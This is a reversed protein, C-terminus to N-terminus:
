GNPRKKLIITKNGKMDGFDISNTNYEVGGYHIRWEGSKAVNDIEVRLVSNENKVNVSAFSIEDPLNPSFTIVKNKITIGFLYRVVVVYLWSASGTYWSWGAKGANKGTYVDASIVYPEAGYKEAEDRTLCKEVPNIMRLYEYAKEKESLKYLAIIFWTAAHTYQGGNERIGVPYDAIYGVNKMNSFPPDLLKITKSTKDVLLEEAYKMASKCREASTIGSIVAYAQTLLDIKCEPSEPSGLVTGDDTIARSFYKGNYQSNAGSKLEALKEYLFKKEGPLTIYRLFKNIVEYLFMTLWVSKGKGDRGVLNMGDNWDGGHMFVLGDDDIEKCVSLVARKCHELLSEKDKLPTMNGCFSENGAPIPVNKLFPIREALIECEGTFSVYEDVVYPLFLRDDMIRTRVGFFPNHWWHMVDGDEFQRAACTLIFERVARRDIYLMTLCDQLQDRFGYGGGVQYYGTRGYFRSCYTQYPLFRVIYDLTSGSYFSFMSLDAYRRKAASIAAKVSLGSLEYGMEVGITLKENPLMESMTSYVPLNMPKKLIKLVNERCCKEMLFNAGEFKLEVKQSNFHNEISFQGDGNTCVDIGCFSNDSFDGLVPNILFNIKIKRNAESTNEIEILYIKSGSPSVSLTVASVFGNFSKRFETYGLGHKCYFDKSSDPSTANWTIGSEEFFLAESRLDLRSENDFATIKNERSNNGFTFGGGNCTILAGGNENAIVNSFPRRPLEKVVFANDGTFYGASTSLVRQPYNLPQSPMLKGRFRFNKVDPANAYYDVSYLGVAKLIKKGESATVIDVKCCDPKHRNIGSATVAAVVRDKLANFYGYEESVSIVVDFEVGFRYLLDYSNLKKNVGCIDSYGTVNIIAVPRRYNYGLKCLEVNCGFAGYIAKKAFSCYEESLRYIASNVNIQTTIVSLYNEDRVTRGKRILESEDFGCLLSFACKRESHPEITVNAKATVYSGDVNFEAAIGTVCLLTLVTTKSNECLLGDQRVNHSIFLKNFEPHSRYDENKSMIFDINVSIEASEKENGRNEITLCRMEAGLGNLVYGECTVFLGNKSGSYVNKDDFFETKDWVVNGANITVNFGEYVTKDKYITYGNWLARGGGNSNATLYYIGDSLFNLEPVTKRIFISRSERGCARPLTESKRLPYKEYEPLFDLRYMASAIHSDGIFGRKIVDTLYNTLALIIMGQHHAMYSKIVGGDYAEYFGFDGYLRKGLMVCMNKLVSKANVTIGMISAYPAIVGGRAQESLAVSEIGFAKYLYNGGADVAAFQSESIGWMGSLLEGSQLKVTSFVSKLAASGKSFNVFLYPMLYEFASGSWSYMCGYTKSFRRGLNELAEGPIKNYGVCYIYTLLAESAVLDYCSLDFRSERSNYGIALLGKKANYLPLFDTNDLLDSIIARCKENAYKNIVCLCVCFNGSDVSSVYEPYLPEGSCTDYWNYLHGNWRKLGDVRQLIGYVYEDFTTRSILTNMYACLVSILSFGINTPSTRKAFVKETRVRCNDAVLFDGKEFQDAFYKWSDKIVTKVYDVGAKKVKKKKDLTTLPMFVIIFHMFALLGFIWLKFYIGAFLFGLSFTLNIGIYKRNGKAHAFTQWQLLNKRKFLRIVSILAAYTDVVARYPLRVFDALTGITVKVCETANTLINSLPLIVPFFLCFCLVSFVLWDGSVAFVIEYILLILPVFADVINLLLHFQQSFNLPNDIKEGNKTKIKRGLYPLMQVDGRLWRLRRAESKEFNEPCQEFVSYSTVIAGSFAGEIFDHSLISNDPFADRVKETFEKIRYIGKGTYNNCLLVDREFDIRSTSYSDIGGNGHFIATYLNQNASSLYHKGILGAVAYDKCLPHKMVACLKEACFIFSDEDLTIVYKYNGELNKVRFFDTKEGLLYANLELLAGRKKEYGCYYGSERNKIRKRIVFAFNDKQARESLFDAIGREEPTFYGDKSPMFDCLMCCNFGPNAYKVTLLREVNKEAENRGGILCCMVILTTKKDADTVIAAPVHMKKAKSSILARLLKLEAMFLPITIPILVSSLAALWVTQTLVLAALVFYYAIRLGRNRNKILVRWFDNGYRATAEAVYAKEGNVGTREAILGLLYMKTASDSVVYSENEIENLLKDTMSLSLIFEDTFIDDIKRLSEFVSTMNTCLDAKKYEFLNVFSEFSKENDSLLTEIQNKTIDDALKIMSGVYESKYIDAISFRKYFADNEAKAVNKEIDIAIETLNICYKLLAYRCASKILCIERIGFPSFKQYGNMASKVIREDLKGRNNEAAFSMLLFICPIGNVSNLAFSPNKDESFYDIATATVSYNELFVREYNETMNKGSNKRKVKEYYGFLKDAFYKAPLTCYDVKQIDLLKEGLKESEVCFEDFPLCRSTFGHNNM